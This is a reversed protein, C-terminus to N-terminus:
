ERWKTPIVELLVIKRPPLEVSLARRGTDISGLLGRERSGVQFVKVRKGELPTGKLDIIVEARQSEPLINCFVYGLREGRYSWGQHVISPAEFEGAERRGGISNYHKWDLKAKRLPEVVTAPKIMSGYALYNKAFLTRARTIERLFKVKGPDAELPNEDERIWCHYHLQYSPASMGPFLELPSFEYNLELVGGELAV